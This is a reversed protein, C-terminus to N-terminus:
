SKDVKAMYAILEVVRNSYGYENDYRDVYYLLLLLWM